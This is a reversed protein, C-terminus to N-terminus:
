LKALQSPKVASMLAAAYGLSHGTVNPHFNYDAFPNSTDLVIWPDLSNAAHGTFRGSVDVYQANAGYSLNAGAVAAAITANLTDTAQNVLTQNAAPVAPIGNIPDFLRPYGLVAIKANPAVGHIGAYTQALGSGLAPLAAASANVAASCVTQDYQACLFLVNYVGVDNAGATISVLGTQPSLAGAFALGGIQAAVTPTVGDYAPSATSLAAGHCAGNAVLNVRGTAGVDDVYGPHSQWCPTNAPRVAAGAGTGATYSDGVAVYSVKPPPAAEAPIAAFGLAMAMTALGAALAPRRRRVTLTAM